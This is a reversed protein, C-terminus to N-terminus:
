SAARAIAGCSDEATEDSTMAVQGSPYRQRVKDLAWLFTMNAYRPNNHEYIQFDRVLWKIASKALWAANLSRCIKLALYYGSVAATHALRRLHYQLRLAPGVTRREFKKLDEFATPSWWVSSYNFCISNGKKVQGFSQRPIGREEALRRPVPRDYDGGVSFPRMEESAGIRLVQEQHISGITVVPLLLYGHRLRHETLNSGSCDKRVMVSNPAANLEWVAGGMFGNVMIKNALSEGLVNFVYDEGGMGSALFEAEGFARDTSKAERQFERVKMGLQEAIDRGSDAKGGRATTM